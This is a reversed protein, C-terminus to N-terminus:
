RSTVGTPAKGSAPAQHSEVVYRRSEAHWIVPAGKAVLGREEAEARSVVIMNRRLAAADPDDSQVNADGEAEAAAAGDGKGFILYDGDAERRSIAYNIEM